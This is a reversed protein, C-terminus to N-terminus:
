KRVLLLLKKFKEKIYVYYVFHVNNQLNLVRIAGFYQDLM